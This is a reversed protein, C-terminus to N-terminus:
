HVMLLVAIFSKVLPVKKYMVDFDWAIKAFKLLVDSTEMNPVDDEVGVPVLMEVTVTKYKVVECSTCEKMIEEDMM